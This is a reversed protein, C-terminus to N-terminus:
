SSDAVQVALTPCRPYPPPPGEAPPALSPDAWITFTKDSSASALTESKPDFAVDQVYDAHHELSCSLTANKVDLFKVSRDASAVALICGSADFAAANSPAPGLDVRLWEEMKRMDHVVVIGKSDCSALLNGQANFIVHNCNTQHAKLTLVSKSTRMDWLAVTADAGASALHNTHPQFCVSNVSSTHGRLTARCRLSNLDNCKITHDQSGTAFFDGQDHPSCAWVPLSHDSFTHLCKAETISWVKATADGSTTLLLSGQPHFALSGLWDEHGNGSMVLEALPLQWLKWTCDDSATALLPLSPHFCLSTVPAVHAEVSLVPQLDAPIVEACPPGSRLPSARRAPLWQADLPHSTPRGQTERDAAGRENSRTRSQSRTRAVRPRGRGALSDSEGGEAGSLQAENSSSRSDAHKGSAGEAESVRAELEKVRGELRDREIAILAKARVATEVKKKLEEVALQMSELEAKARKVKATVADKEYKLRRHHMRYFDRERKYHDFCASKTAAEEKCEQLEKKLFELQTRLNENLLLVSPIAEQKRPRASCGEDSSAAANALRRQYWEVQFMELTRQMGHSVLFNLVFDDESDHQRILSPQASAAAALRQAEQEKLIVTTKAVLTSFDEVGEDLNLNSQDVEEEEGAQRANQPSNSRELGEAKLEQELAEYDISECDGSSVSLAAHM